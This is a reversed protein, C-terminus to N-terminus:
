LTRCRSTPYLSSHYHPLASSWSIVCKCIHIHSHMLIINEQTQIDIYTAASIVKIGTENYAWTYKCLIKLGSAVTCM